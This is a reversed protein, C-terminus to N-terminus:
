TACVANKEDQRSRLSLCFGLAFNCQLACPRQVSLLKVHPNRRLFDGGVVIDFADIDLM